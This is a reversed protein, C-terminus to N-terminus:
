QKKKHEAHGVGQGWPSWPLVRCKLLDMDFARVAVLIM